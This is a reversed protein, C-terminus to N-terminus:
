VGLYVMAKEFLRRDEKFRGIATNCDLCLLGRVKNTKHCHDVALSKGEQKPTKNCIACSFKQEKLLNQYQELTIGYKSKLRSNQVSYPHAKNWAIQWDTYYRQNKQHYAKMWAKVSKRKARKRSNANIKDRNATAYAREYERSSFYISSTNM